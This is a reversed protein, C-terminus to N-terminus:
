ALEYVTAIPAASAAPITIAQQFATATLLVAFLAAFLRSTTTHM